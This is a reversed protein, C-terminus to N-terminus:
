YFRRNESFLSMLWKMPPYLSSYVFLRFFDGAVPTKLYSLFLILIACLVGAVFIAIAQFPTKRLSITQQLYALGTGVLGFSIIGAGVPTSAILDSALGIAFSTIIADSITGHVAFFVLMILLLDPHIRLKSLLGDQILMIFIILIAFRIWRM